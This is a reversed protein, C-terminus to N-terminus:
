AEDQRAGPNHVISVADSLEVLFGGQRLTEEIWRTDAAIAYDRSGSQAGGWALAAALQRDGLAIGYHAFVRAYFETLRIHEGPELLAAVLFRLLHPPLVFRQGPGTRPIVLGLVKALGRFILFGHKDAETLSGGAAPDSKARKRLVRFLLEEIQEFSGQALKRTPTGPPSDSNATIWAYGGIFGDTSTSSGDERVAQSCLTRLVQMCCLTQLLNLKELDALTSLAVNRVEFAFLHAEALTATPVWGLPARKPTDYLRFASLGGEVFHSLQNLPRVADELVVRLAEETVSCLTALSVGSVHSYLKGGDHTSLPTDDCQFLHALQLFLLEGGRAMFNHRDAAFYQRAASWQTLQPPKPAKSHLWDLERALLGYSAPLFTYTAWTRNKAVGVFGALLSQLLRIAEDKDAATGEIREALDDLAERYASQHAEHRTDLKSAAFFAFLKLAVRDEPWYTARGTDDGISFTFSHADSNEGAQGKPSAFVLLFEALYEVPTQDRYFRRGYIQIAPNSPEGTGDIPPFREPM